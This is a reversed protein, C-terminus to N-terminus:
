VSFGLRVPPRCVTVLRLYYFLWHLSQSPKPKLIKVDQSGPIAAAIAAPASEGNGFLRDPLGRYLPETQATNRNHLSSYTSRSIQWQRETRNPMSRM